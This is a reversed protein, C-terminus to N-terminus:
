FRAGLFISHGDTAVIAARQESGHRVFLYTGAAALAIGFGLATYGVRRETTADSLMSDYGSLNPAKMAADATNGSKVLYVIGITLGVAGGAVLADGARDAYWPSPASVPAPEPLPPEPTQAECQKINARAAELSAASVDAYLYKRYLPLALDCHGGLRDSQAWGYLLSPVPDARYAAEFERAASAYDKDKYAALAADDHEQAAANLTPPAPKADDAYALASCTCLALATRLTM